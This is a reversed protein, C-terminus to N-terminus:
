PHLRRGLFHREFQCLKGPHGALRARVADFAQKQRLNLPHEPEDACALHSMLLTLNLGEMTRADNLLGALADASFGLRNIGTDVHLACPLKRGYVRGFAAWERAEDHAILAPRLDESAYYEAQGPFLGDLVYIIAERPLLSRM